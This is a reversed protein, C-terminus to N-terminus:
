YVAQRPTGTGSALGPELVDIDVSVDVPRNAVRAM